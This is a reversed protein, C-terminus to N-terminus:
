IFYLDIKQQQQSMALYAGWEHWHRIEDNVDIAFSQVGYTKNKNRNQKANEIEFLRKKAAKERKHVEEYIKRRSKQM